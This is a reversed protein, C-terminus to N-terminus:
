FSVRNTASDAATSRISRARDSAQASWAAIGALGMELVSFRTKRDGLQQEEISWELSNLEKMMPIMQRLRDQYEPYDQALQSIDIEEGSQLQAFIVEVLEGLVSPDTQQASRTNM